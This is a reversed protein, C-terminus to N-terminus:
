LIFYYPVFSCKEFYPVTEGGFNLIQFNLVLVEIYVLVAAILPMSICFVM